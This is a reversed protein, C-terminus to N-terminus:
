EAVDPDIYIHVTTEQAFSILLGEGESWWYTVVFLTPVASLIKMINLASVKWSNLCYM